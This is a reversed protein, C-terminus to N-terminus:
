PTWSRRRRNGPSTTLRLFTSTCGLSRRQMSRAAPSLTTSRVAKSASILAISPDAAQAAPSSLVAALACTAAFIARSARHPIGDM